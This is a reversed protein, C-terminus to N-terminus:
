ETFDGFAVFGVIEQESRLDGSDSGRERKLEGSRRDRFFGGIGGDGSENTAVPIEGDRERDIEGAAM